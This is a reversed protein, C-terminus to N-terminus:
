SGHRAKQADIAQGIGDRLTRLSERNVRREASSDSIIRKSQADLATTIADLDRRLEDNKERLVTIETELDRNREDCKRENEVLEMVRDELRDLREWLTTNEALLTVRFREEGDQLSLREKSKHEGRSRLARVLETALGGSAAVGLTQVWGPLDLLPM